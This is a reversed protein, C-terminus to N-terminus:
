PEEQTILNLTGDMGAVCVRGKGDTATGAMVHLQPTVQYRWLLKGDAADLVCLLGHNSCAYVRGAAEVPAVPFRGMPVKSSEWVIKGSPDYRSVGESLGRAYFGKGDATLGIAAVSEAIGGIYDGTLSYSGLRYARDCGFLRDGIILPPCDAPAYYRSKMAPESLHGAPGPKKWVLTGERADICYLLGDWAGFYLRGSHLLLPQEISFAAHRKSWITKGSKRDIAHVFGELDGSYVRDNDLGPTGYVAAGTGPQWQWLRRGDLGIAYVGKEAASVYLAGAELAPAHLIEVGADLLEKVTPQTQKFSVRVVQGATTCAIVDGDVFLPAAKVGATLEVTSCRLPVRKSECTFERARDIRYDGFDAVVRLFHRGDVLSRVPLTGTFIGATVNNTLKVASKDDGDISATVNKPLGGQVQVRIAMGSTRITPRLKKSGLSQGITQFELTPKKFPAVPKELLVQMAKSSDHFKYVCRLVGKSVSVIGYGANPGFTSGGMVSDIAGWREHRAGHGHGMLLLVVNWNELLEILRVQEYPEAFEKSSLPHHCFVFVPTTRSVKELDKALWTLTRREISPLPEQPTATNIFTFHCGSREFSYHDSGYKRRMVRQISTWTNDHNGPTVYFPIRLPKLINEVADWTENIVGYETVDGTVAVFAPPPTQIALPGLKQVQTAEEYLWAIVDSGRVASAKDTGFPVPSFHMDSIHLFCFDSIAAAARQGAAPMVACALLLVTTRLRMIGYRRHGPM